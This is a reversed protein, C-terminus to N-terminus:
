KKKESYNEKIFNYEEDTLLSNLTVQNYEYVNKTNGVLKIVSTKEKLIKLLITDNKSM